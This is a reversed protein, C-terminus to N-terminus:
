RITFRYHIVAARRPTRLWIAFTWRPATQNAEFQLRRFRRVLLCPRSNAILWSAEFRALSAIWAEAADNARLFEAFAVADAIHRKAGQPAFTPAFARFLCSYREGLAAQTRPLLKRAEIRRKGILSRAFPELQPLTEQAIACAEDAQVGFKAGTAAPNALFAKRLEADTALHAVLRQTNALSM